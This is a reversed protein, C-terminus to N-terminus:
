DNDVEMRYVPGTIKSFGYFWDCKAETINFVYVGDGPKILASHDAQEGNAKRIYWCGHASFVDGEKLEGLTKPQPMDALTPRPYEIEVLKLTPM